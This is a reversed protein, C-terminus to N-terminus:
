EAETAEEEVAMNQVIASQGDQYLKEIIRVMMLDRALSWDFRLQEKDITTFFAMVFEDYSFLPQTAKKDAKILADRFDWEKRATFLRNLLREDQKEVYEAIRDAVAKIAEIRDKDMELVEMLFLTALPWSILSADTYPSYTYRPDNKGEGKPQGVRPMRLIYRTLFTHAENPLNFLDEYFYNQQHYTIVGDANETQTNLHEARQVIREWAQPTERRARDIFRLVPATLHNIEIEAGRNNNVFQYVTIPYPKQPNSAKTLDLMDQILRTRAFKYRPLTNVSEIQLHTRNRVLNKRTLEIQKQYDHTHVIWIKNGSILGGMPMIFIALMCWGSVPLMPVGEPMFNIKSASNLLPIYDRAMRVTAPDGSFSCTDGELASRERKLKSPEDKWLNMLDNVVEHRESEFKPKMRSTNTFGSNPFLISNLFNSMSLNLYRDAVERTFAEIAEVTLDQPNTVGAHACLTAVGVDVLPHGIFRFPLETM